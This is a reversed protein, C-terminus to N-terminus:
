SGLPMRLTLEYSRGLPSDGRFGLISDIQPPDEDFVNQIGVGVQLQKGLNGLNGLPMGRLRYSASLDLTTFPSYARGAYSGTGTHTVIAGARWPDRKWYMNGTFTWDPPSEQDSTSVVPVG